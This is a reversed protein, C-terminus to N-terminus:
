KEYDRDLVDPPLAQILTQLRQDTEAVLVLIRQEGQTRSVTMESARKNLEPVLELLWAPIEAQPPGSQRSYLVVAVPSHQAGIASSATFSALSKSGLEKAFLDAFLEVPEKQGLVVAAPQRSDDTMPERFAQGSRRAGSELDVYDYVPDRYEAVDFGQFIDMMLAHNEQEDKAGSDWVEISKAFVYYGDSLSPNANDYELFMKGSTSDVLHWQGGIYVEVLIHGQIFGSGPSKAVLKKIWDIRGTQVFVSPIGKARALAAFALGYDTCGTSVRSAIIEDATRGFKEGDGYRLNRSTWRFIQQLTGRDKQDNFQEAVQAIGETVETQRGSILFLEPQSYDTNQFHGKFVQPTEPATVGPGSGPLDEDEIPKHASVPQSIHVTNIDGDWDVQKGTMEAVARLPVYTTDKYLFNDGEVSKGDVVIRVRNAVVQISQTLDAANVGIAATVLSCVLVGLVFGKLTQNMM